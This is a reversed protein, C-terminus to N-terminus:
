LFKRALILIHHPRIEEANEVRLGTYEVLEVASRIDFVHHHLCRNNLNDLARAKFAHCDGAEPDRSLDHLSLIEPLHTMDDEAVPKEYDEIMHELSTIPRRHDFTRYKDPLFLVLLGENRLLCIWQKLAQIPNAIHELVHSSLVFDYANAPLNQLDTAEAILQRGPSKAKDFVFTHGAQISGEWMTSSNFNCNDLHRALPYVPFIGRKSFVQSPGGIEIGNKDLFCLRHQQFSKASGQGFASLRNSLARKIIKAKNLVEM